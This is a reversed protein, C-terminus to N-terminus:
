RYHLLSVMATDSYIKSFEIDAGMEWDFHPFGKDSTHFLRAQKSMPPFQKILPPASYVINM